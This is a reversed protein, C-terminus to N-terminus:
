EVLKMESILHGAGAYKDVIFLLYRIDLSINRCVNSDFMIDSMTGEWVRDFNIGVLEGKANLVPSGSNGGSTHNTAVFAVPVTGNEAWRGYDKKLHLDVLKQPVVYDYVGMKSKQIIGDLTTFHTFDVADRPSYGKVKGYAVRITSNADPFFVRNPQMEMLGKVYTRYLVNIEDSLLQYPLNVNVLFISDFQYNISYAIDNKLTAAKEASFSSLIEFLKTSDTFVSQKFLLHSAIKWNGEAAQYLASLKPPFLGNPMSPKEMDNRFVEMTAAFINKDTATHYDKYFRKANATMSNAMKAVKVSDFMVGNSAENVLLKFDTVFRFLEVAKFAERELDRAVLLPKISDQLQAFKGLLHGYEAVRNPNAAVWTAFNTELEVKRSVANLRVLGNREGIWKKWANAVGAYKSTYKIRVTDNSKMFNDMIELRKTRLDIKMPNSSNVVYDVEHSTIFQQTTGPYGFVMTFDNEKVGKTSIPLFYKPKYPVNSPSYAAPKNDKDAYIRFLSFDGTHRPWMWNDTDGGFNGIDKPPAGVLRVDRFVENIFLIYQNGYFMPAIRAAYHTGAIASDAITKSNSAILKERDRESLNSTVGKLVLSTVDEIKVLFTVTLNTNPLEEDLSKAWFGNTIYDNEISSHSQINGLGCHHNTILLGNASVLEGTCGRGFHVIADKISPKNISYIDEASLKFGQKRMDSINYKEILHPLWMGEDAISPTTILLYLSLFSLIRNM